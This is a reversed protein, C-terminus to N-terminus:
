EGGGFAGVFAPGEFPLNVKIDQWALREPQDLDAVARPPLDLVMQQRGHEDFTEWAPLGEHNPDGTRAFAIWTESMLAAMEYRAPSSGTMPRGDPNDFVLPTDLSHGARLLGNAYDSEWAFQYFYM